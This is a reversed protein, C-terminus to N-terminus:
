FFKGFDYAETDDGDPKAKTPKSKPATNAVKRGLKEVPKPASASVKPQRNHNTNEKTKSQAKRTGASAFTVKKSPPLPDEKGRKRKQKSSLPPAPAEEEEEEEEEEEVDGDSLTTNDEEEAEEEEEGEDGDENDASYPEEFSPLRTDVVGPSLKVLGGRKRMERRTALAGLVGKDGGEDVPGRSAPMTYWRLTGLNWERLIVRSAGVLDLTGRKKVLQHSRALGPLFADVDGKSFAPLSYHLMLDENNARSVIHVVAPTPEKLRDIRGKNRMLIDRARSEETLESDVWMLGPADVFRIKKGGEEITVEQPLVTTTPGRSSTALSYTPLVAKKAVSNIVSSKGANTFGAVAVVLPEDGKDKAWPLLAKLLADVGIADDAPLKGKGKGKEQQCQPIFASASRFLVTPQQSRLQAAWAAVAEQPCTDIKNLLFVVRGSPALKELESSRFALPDRCDLVELLVDAHELVSKLTPLDKNVLAPVEEEEEEEEEVQRPPVPRKTAKANVLHKAAISAVADLEDDETTTNTTAPKVKKADKRQQKEELALRRQEQVEALLQDKYPFENPIGPDKKQKSKWQPNKKAAKAKKKKSERVKTQLKRRDNTSGRNSTKKRIRPM